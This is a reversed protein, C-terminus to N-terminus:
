IAWLSLLIYTTNGNEEQFQMPFGSGIPFAWFDTHLISSRGEAQPLPFSDLKKPICAPLFFSGM